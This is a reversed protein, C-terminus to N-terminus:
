PMESKSNSLYKHPMIFKNLHTVKIGAMSLLKTALADTAYGECYVIEKVRVQIIKKTCGLCPFSTAYVTCNEARAVGAEMLGNEEAHICLCQDLAEGCRANSNCRPCGGENCNPLGRPTGNYGTSILRNDKMLICGVRRKMCNSRTSALFALRMFYSDWSPRLLENSLELRRIDLELCRTTSANVILTDALELCSSYAHFEIQDQRAFDELTLSEHTANIRNFRTLLPAEVGILYFMPRKRMVEIERASTIPWDLVFDSKWREESM